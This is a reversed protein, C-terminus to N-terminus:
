LSSLLPFQQSYKIKLGSSIGWRGVDFFHFYLGNVILFHTHRFRNWYGQLGRKSKGDDRRWDSDVFDYSSVRLSRFDEHRSRTVEHIIRRFFWSGRCSRVRGQSRLVP